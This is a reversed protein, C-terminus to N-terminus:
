WRQKIKDYAFDGLLRHAAPTPHRDDAFFYLNYNSVGAILTSPTCANAVPTTCVAANSVAGSGLNNSPTIIIPNYYGETDVLLVNDTQSALSIKLSDNFSRVAATVAAAPIGAASSTGGSPISAYPARGLDYSNSIVIHKGGAAVLRRVQDAFAVGAAQAATNLAADSAIVNNRRDNVLATIETIGADILVVDNKALAGAALFSSIQTAISNAGSSVRAGAAAYGTGGANSPTVGLGYRAATQLAWINTSSDNVTFRATAGAQGIDAFSDGFVIFRSPQLPEFTNGSGCATLLTTVSAVVLAASFLRRFRFSMM